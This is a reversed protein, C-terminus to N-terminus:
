PNIDNGDATQRDMGPLVKNMVDAVQEAEALDQTRAQAEQMQAAQQAQQQEIQAAEEETAILGEDTLNVREEISKLVRYPHNIYPGFRPHTALPLIVEKIAQMTENDRLLAQIGSVHFSGDMDPVGSVGTEAEPDPMIGMTLLEEEAFLELYDEYRAYREAIEQGAMIAFIAGNEINEGMLGYVGMAQDLNMAAERFTMDKRYGPLGQVADTVFSGRQFHQDYNQMNALADSTRSRRQELRVVQQGNPTDRVLYEKGPWREVDNPDVLGDVNIEVPPNVVWQLYDHHLNM